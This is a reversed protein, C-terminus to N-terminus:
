SKLKNKSIGPHLVPLCVVSFGTRVFAAGLGLIGVGAGVRTGPGEVPAEDFSVQELHLCPNKQESWPESGLGFGTSEWAAAEASTVTLTEAEGLLITPM